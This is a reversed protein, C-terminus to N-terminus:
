RAYCVEIIDLYIFNYKKSVRIKYPNSSTNIYISIPWNINTKNENM